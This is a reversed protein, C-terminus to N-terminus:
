KPVGPASPAPPTPALSATTSQDNQPTFVLRATSYGSSTTLGEIQTLTAPTLTRTKSFIWLAKHSAEGIVLWSNDPAMALVWYPRAMPFFTPIRLKGDTQKDIKATYNHVVAFGKAATCSDVLQLRRPKDDSAVLEQSDSICEKERRNPYRAIEYWAGSLNKVDLHPLATVGQALSQTASPCLCIAALPLLLRLHSCARFIAGNNLSHM